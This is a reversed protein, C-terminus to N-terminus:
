KVTLGNFAYTANIVIEEAVTADAYSDYQAMGGVNYIKSMDYGNADLLQMFAKIRGGSQCM